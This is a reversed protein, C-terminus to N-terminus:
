KARSTPEQGFERADVSTARVTWRRNWRLDTLSLPAIDLRWFAQLPADLVQIVAMRIVAPHTVALMHRGAADHAAIRALWAAVRAQLQVLSEGGHPRAEPDGLWAAVAEAEEASLAALSHGQWTGVDLDTLAADEVVAVGLADALAAATQRARDEPATLLQGVKRLARTEAWHRAQALGAEEAPETAPAFIADRQARTPAHALLILRRTPDSATM